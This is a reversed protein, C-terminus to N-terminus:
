NAEINLRRIIEGKTQYDASVAAAFAPGDLFDAGGKVTAALAQVRESRVATACASRLKAMVDAPTAKPAMFGNLGRNPSIAIGQEALSPLEPLAANRKEGFVALIRIRGAQPLVSGLSSVGIDVAGSLLAPIVEADGRFNVAVASAGAKQLFEAMALNPISAPGLQGFTLKGPASRLADVLDEITKHPSRESVAITFDNVFTQCVYAFADIEFPKSKMAHGAVSISHVPGAALTYGDPAAGAVSAFAITGSAGARNVVVFPQGLSKAMEDAVARVMVDVVAGASWGVLVQVPHDPYATQATVATVPACALLLCYALRRLVNRM